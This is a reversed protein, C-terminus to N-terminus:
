FQVIVNSEPGWGGAETAEADFPEAAGCSDFPSQLGPRPGSKLHMLNMLNPGPDSDVPDM